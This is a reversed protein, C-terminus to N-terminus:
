AVMADDCGLPTVVHLDDVVVDAVPDVGSQEQMAAGVVGDDGAVVNM